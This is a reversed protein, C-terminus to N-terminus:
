KRYNLEQLLMSGGSHRFKARAGSQADEQRASTALYANMEKSRAEDEAVNTLHDSITVLYLDPEGARKNVNSLIYYNKIWGKSKAFDETKRYAGALHDAYDGAHGDDISVEAVTWYNGGQLPFEQASAPVAYAMSAAGLAVLMSRFMSKGRLQPVIARVRAARLSPM